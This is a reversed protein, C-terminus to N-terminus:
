LDAPLPTHSHSEWPPSTCRPCVSLPTISVSVKKTWQNLWGGLLECVLWEIMFVSQTGRHHLPPNLGTQSLRSSKVSCTIGWSCGSAQVLIHMIPSLPRLSLLKRSVAWRFSWPVPWSGLGTYLRVVTVILRFCSTTDLHFISKKQTNTQVISDIVFGLIGNIVDYFNNKTWAIVWYLCTARRGMSIWSDLSKGNNWLGPTRPKLINCLLPSRSPLSYLLGM